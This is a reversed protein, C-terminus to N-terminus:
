NDGCDRNDKYTNDIEDDNNDNDYDDHRNNDYGVDGDDSDKSHGNYIKTEKRKKKNSRYEKGQEHFSIRHLKNRYAKMFSEWRMRVDLQDLDVTSDPIAVEFVIFKPKLNPNNFQVLLMANKMERIEGCSLGTDDM